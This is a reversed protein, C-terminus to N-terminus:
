CFSTGPINRPPYLRCTRLASLRVVKTHRNDQFRPAEDEQLEWPRDQGTCPNKVNLIWLPLLATPFHFEVKARLRWCERQFEYLLAGRALSIVNDLLHLQPNWREPIHHSLSVVNPLIAAGVDEFTWWDLFTLEVRWSGSVWRCTVEPFTLIMQCPWNLWTYHMRSIWVGATGHGINM